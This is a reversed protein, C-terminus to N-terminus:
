PANEAPPLIAWGMIAPEVEARTQRALTLQPQMEAQPFENHIFAPTGEDYGRGTCDRICWVIIGGDRAINEPKIWPSIVYDGMILVHPREPTYYAVNGAPWINGIVYRLPAHYREHWADALKEALARGPFHVRQTKHTVYPGYLTGGAYAMLSFIFIIGWGYAFRQLAPVPFAPGFRFIAWIGIFNWFPTAWMDHIKFGALLALLFTLIFPGFTIFCLFARDFSHLRDEGVPAKCNFIGFFLLAAPLLAVIQGGVLGALLFPSHYPRHLQDRVYTFPMFDHRFLWM